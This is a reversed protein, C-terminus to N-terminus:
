RSYPFTPASRSRISTTNHVAFLESLHSLRKTPGFKTPEPDTKRKEALLMAFERETAPAHHRM